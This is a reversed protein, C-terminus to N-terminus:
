CWMVFPTNFKNNVCDIPNPKRYNDNDKQVLELAVLIIVVYLKEINSQSSRTHHKQIKKQFVKPHFSNHFKFICMLNLHFELKFIKQNCNLLFQVLQSALFLMFLFLGQFIKCAKNVIMGLLTHLMFTEAVVKIRKEPYLLFLLFISLSYDFECFFFDFKEIRLIILCKELCIQCSGVECIILILVNWKLSELM